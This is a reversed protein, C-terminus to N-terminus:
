MDPQMLDMDVLPRKTSEDRHNLGILIAIIGDAHPRTHSAPATVGMENDYADGSFVLLEDPTASRGPASAQAPASSIAVGSAVLAAIVLKKSFM